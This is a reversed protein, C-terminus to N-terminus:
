VGLSAGVAAGVYEGLALGDAVGDYEGLATGVVGVASGVM